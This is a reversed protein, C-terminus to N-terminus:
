YRYVAAIGTDSPMMDAPMVLVEGGARLVSEATDELLDSVDPGDLNILIDGTAPDIKGGIHRDADVLAVQVRGEAASKAVELVDDSGAHHAKAARFNDVAQQAKSRFRPEMVKWAEARIRELPVHDPDLKIGEEILNQNRSIARFDAQNEALACLIMPLGSVRSYNEWITKDVTRFWREFDLSGTVIGPAAGSGTRPDGGAMQEECVFAEHVTRPVNTLPVDILSDRDGELLRVDKRTLCLVQYRDMTQLLRVLPKVHFHDAVEVAEPVQRPLDVLARFDPSCFIAMAPLRQNWFETGGVMDRCASILENVQTTRYGAAHLEGEARKPLDKFRVPDELEGPFAPSVPMYISICPPQHAELLRGLMDRSLRPM